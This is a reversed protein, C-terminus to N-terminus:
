SVANLNTIRVSYTPVGGGGGLFQSLKTASRM